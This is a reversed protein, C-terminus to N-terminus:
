LFLIQSYKVPKKTKFYNHFKFLWYLQHLDALAWVDFCLIEDSIRFNWDSIVVFEDKTRENAIYLDGIKEFRYFKLNNYVVSMKSFNRFSRISVFIILFLCLLIFNIM